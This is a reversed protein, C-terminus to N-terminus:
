FHGMDKCMAIFYTFSLIVLVPSVENDGFASTFELMMLYEEGACM